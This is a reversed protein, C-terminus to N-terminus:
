INKTDIQLDKLGKKFAKVFAKKHNPSGGLPVPVFPVFGRKSTGEVVFQNMYTYKNKLVNFVRVDLIITAKKTEGHVMNGSDKSNGIARMVLSYDCGMSKTLDAIEEQKLAWEYSAEGNNSNTVTSALGNEERWLQTRMVSEKTPVIEFQGVPFLEGMKKDLMAQNKAENAFYLPTDLIVSVKAASAVSTICACMLVAMVMIKLMRKMM